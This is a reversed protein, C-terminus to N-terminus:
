ILLPELGGGGGGGGGGIDLGSYQTYLVYFYMHLCKVSHIEKQVSQM